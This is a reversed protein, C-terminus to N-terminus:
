VAQLSLLSLSVYTHLELSQHVTVCVALPRWRLLEFWHRYIRTKQRLAATDNLEGTTVYEPDAYGYTGVVETTVHSKGQAPGRRAM